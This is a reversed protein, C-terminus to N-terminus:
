KTINSTGGPLSDASRRLRWGFWAGLVPLAVSAAVLVPAIGIRDFVFAAAATGATQGLFMCFAYAALASGRAEPRMQTASVQLVNHFLYFGFGLLVVLFPAPLPSLRLSLLGLAVSALFAGLQVLAFPTLRALLWGSALSYSLGGLGFAALILGAAGPSLGFDLQLHSALFALAGFIAAAECFVAALVARSWRDRLLDRLLALPRRGDRGPAPDIRRDAARADLLMVLAVLMQLAAIVLFISRWGYLDALVGGAAQGFIVGLIQGPIFRAVVAPRQRMDVADGIWALAMPIIAAAGAGAALRALVLAEFSTALFCLATALGSVATAVIVTRYKGVRDGVLGGVLQFLGYTVSFAIVTQAARGTTIGFDGAILPLLPDAARISAASAFAALSLLLVARWPVYGEDGAARPPRVDSTM